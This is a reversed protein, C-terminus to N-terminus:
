AKQLRRSSDQYASNRGTEIQDLGRSELDRIACFEVRGPGQVILREESPLVPGPRKHLNSRPAPAWPEEGRGHM